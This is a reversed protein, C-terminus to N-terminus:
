KRGTCTYYWRIKDGERLTYDSSGVDPSEGNVTYIWGSRNGCDFEYLQNIGEVYFSGYVPTYAAELQIGADDCARRTVDYVTDGKSIEMRTSRIIIGDKPVFPYKEKALDDMHDLIEKCTIVITCTKQKKKTGSGSQGSGSGGSGSKGSGSDGSQASQNEGSGNAPSGASGSGNSGGPSGTGPNYTATNGSGSNGARRATLSSQGQSDASDSEKDSGAKDGARGSGAQDSTNQGAGDQETLAASGDSEGSQSQTVDVKPAGKFWGRASGVAMLACLAIVAVAAALLINLLKNKKRDDM